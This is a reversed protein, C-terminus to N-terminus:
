WITLFPPYWLEAESFYPPSVSPLNPLLTYFLMLNRNCSYKRSLVVCHVHAVSAVFPTVTLFHTSPKNPTLVVSSTMKLTVCYMYGKRESPWLFPVTLTSSSVTTVPWWRAHPFRLFVVWHFFFSRGETYLHINEFHSQMRDSWSSIM